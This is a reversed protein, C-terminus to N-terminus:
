YDEDDWGDEDTKTAEKWADNVVHMAVASIGGMEKAREVRMKQTRIHEGVIEAPKGVFINAQYTLAAGFVHDDEHGEEHKLRGTDHRVFTSCENVLTACPVNSATYRLYSKFDGMLLHKAQETESWGYQKTMSKGSTDPIEKVYQNANLKILRKVTTQGAGTREACIMAAQGNSNYFYSLAYLMGAWDYADVKNSVLKAVLRETKRDMVYATSNTLGLGESIDSGIAYRNAWEIPEQSWGEKEHYPLEWITFPGSGVEFGIVEVNSDGDDSILLTGVTGTEFTSHRALAGKFYTGHLASIAEEETSPYMISIDDDDMGEMRKRDLFDDGRGPVCRWDLFIRVFRNLGSMSSTYIERVFSWGPKDKNANSIIILQGAAHELTPLAAQFISKIYRNLAAEDLILCSVTKSQGASPTPAMAKITSNLGEIKTIGTKPDKVEIGFSLEKENRKYVQPKMWDPLNDFIFKCRDLFEVGYAEDSGSVIVILENYSFIARWVVYACVLWTLGLQRAKLIILLKQFLIKPLSERQGEWLKFKIPKSGTRDQITCFTDIFFECSLVSKAYDEANKTAANANKL